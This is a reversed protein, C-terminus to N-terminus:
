AAALLKKPRDAARIKTSVRRHHSLGLRDKKTAEFEKREDISIQQHRCEESCFGQDGRYMYVDEHPSLEKKCWFCAKLFGLEQFGKPSKLMPKIVINSRQGHHQILIRLGELGRSAKSPSMSGKTAVVGGKNQEQHEGGGEEGLHFISKPRPLM